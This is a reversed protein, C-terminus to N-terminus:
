RASRAGGYRSRCCSGADTRAHGAINWAAGSPCGCRLEKRLAQFSAREPEGLLEDYHRGVLEEPRYGLIDVTAANLRLFRGEADILAILDLSNEILATNEEALRALHATNNADNLDTEM